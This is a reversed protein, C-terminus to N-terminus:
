STSSIQITNALEEDSAMNSVSGRYSSATSAAYSCAGGLGGKSFNWDQVYTQSIGLAKTTLFSDQNAGLYVIRWGAREANTIWTKTTYQNFLKSYNEEGDTLIVIIAYKPNLASLSALTGGIADYLATWGDPSYTSESLENATKVDQVPGAEVRSAFRILQINAKGSTDEKQEKLFKNYNEITEKRLIGMSGSEDLIVRIEVTNSDEEKKNYKKDLKKIREPTSM